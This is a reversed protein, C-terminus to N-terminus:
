SQGIIRKKRKATGDFNKENKQSELDRKIAVDKLDLIQKQLIDIQSLLKDNDNELTSSKGELHILKSTLIEKESNFVNTLEKCNRAAESLQNQLDNNQCLLEENKKSLFM